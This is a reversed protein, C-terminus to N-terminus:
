WSSKPKQKVWFGAIFMIGRTDNRAEWRRWSKDMVARVNNQKQAYLRKLIDGFCVLSIWIWVGVWVGRSGDVVGPDAGCSSSTWPLASGLFTEVESTWGIPYRVLFAWSSNSFILARCDLVSSSATWSYRRRYPIGGGGRKSSHNRNAFSLSTLNISSNSVIWSRIVGNQPSFGLVIRVRALSANPKSLPSIPTDM